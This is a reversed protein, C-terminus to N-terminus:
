TDKSLPILAWVSPVVTQKERTRRHVPQHGPWKSFILHGKDVETKSVLPKFVPSSTLLFFVVDKNMIERSFEEGM